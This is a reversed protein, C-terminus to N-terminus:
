SAGFGGGVLVQAKQTSQFGQIRTQPAEPVHNLTLEKFTLSTPCQSSAYQTAVAWSPLRLDAVLELPMTLFKSYGTDLVTRSRGPKGLM